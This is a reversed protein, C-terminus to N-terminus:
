SEPHITVTNLFPFFWPVSVALWDGVRDVWQVLASHCVGLEKQVSPEVSTVSYLICLGQKM